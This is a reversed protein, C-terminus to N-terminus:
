QLLKNNCPVIDGCHRLLFTTCMCMVVPVFFKRYRRGDSFERADPHRGTEDLVLVTANKTIRNVKGVM